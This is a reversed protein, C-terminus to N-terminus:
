RTLRACLSLLTGVFFCLSGILYLVYSLQETDSMPRRLDFTPETSGDVAPIYAGGEAASNRATIAENRVM